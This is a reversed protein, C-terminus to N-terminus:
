KEGGRSLLLTTEMIKKFELVSRRVSDWDGPQFIRKKLNLRANVAFGGSGAKLEGSFDAGSGSVKQLDPPSLVKWRGPFKM